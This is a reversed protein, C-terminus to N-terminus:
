ECAPLIRLKPALEASIVPVEWWLPMTDSPRCTWAVVEGDPYTALVDRHRFELWIPPDDQSAYLRQILSPRDHHPDTNVGFLRGHTWGAEVAARYLGSHVIQRSFERLVHGFANLGALQDLTKILTDTIRQAFADFDRLNYTALAHRTADEWSLGTLSWGGTRKFVDEPCPVDKALWQLECWVSYRHRRVADRPPNPCGRPLIVAGRRKGIGLTSGTAQVCAAILHQAQYGDLTRRHTARKRKPM